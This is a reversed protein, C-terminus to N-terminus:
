LQWRSSPTLHENKWNLLWAVCQHAEAASAPELYHVNFNRATIQGVSAFVELLGIDDEQFVVSLLKKKQNAIYKIYDELYPSEAFKEPYRLYGMAAIYQLKSEKISEWPVYPAVMIELATHSSFLDTSLKGTCRPLEMSQLSSCSFFAYRGIRVVGSHIIASQLGRCISFAEAGIHKVNEPIVISQMKTCYAFARKGIKTIGDPLIIGRLAFCAYFAFDGIETVSSPIEVQRLWTCKSYASRSIKTVGAPIVVSELDSCEYFARDGIETVGEPIVVDGGPGTYKKLIGNEIVFDSM